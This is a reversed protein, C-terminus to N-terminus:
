LCGSTPLNSCCCCDLLYKQSQWKEPSNDLKELLQQASNTLCLGSGEQSASALVSLPRAAAPVASNTCVRLVQGVIGRSGAVCVMAVVMSRFLSHHAPFDTEAPQFHLQGLHQEEEDPLRSTAAM